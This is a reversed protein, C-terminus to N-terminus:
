CSKQVMVLGDPLGLRNLAAQALAVNSDVFNVGSERCLSDLLSLETCGAIITDVEEARLNGILNRAAPENASHLAGSVKIAAILDNVISQDSQSIRSCSLGLQRAQQGYLDREALSASVLPAM